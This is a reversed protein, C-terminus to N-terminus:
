FMDIKRWYIPSEGKSFDGDGFPCTATVLVKLNNLAKTTVKGGMIM